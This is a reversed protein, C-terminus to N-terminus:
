GYAVEVEATSKDAYRIVYRAIVTGDPTSYGSAHLFHLKKVARGIKIGEIKAPRAPLNSSGLQMFGTGIEFEVDGLKKKGTGLSKLNNNEYNNSHLNEDLKGNVHDKLNVFLVPDTKPSPVALLGAAIFLAAVASLLSRMAPVGGLVVLSVCDRPLM